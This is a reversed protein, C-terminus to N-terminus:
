PFSFPSAKSLSSASSAFKHSPPLAAAYSPFAGSASAFPSVQSNQAQTLLSRELVPGKSSWFPLSTGTLVLLAVSVSARLTTLINPSSAIWGLQQTLIHGVMMAM